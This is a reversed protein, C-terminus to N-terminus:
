SATVHDRRLEHLRPPDHSSWARRIRYHLRLSTGCSSNGTGGSNRLNRPIPREYIESHAAGSSRLDDGPNELGATSGIPGIQGERPEPGLGIGATPSDYGAASCGGRNPIPRTRVTWCIFPTLWKTVLQRSAPTPTTASCRSSFMGSKTIKGCLTLVRRLKIRAWVGTYYSEEASHTLWTLSALLYKPLARALSYAAGDNWGFFARAQVAQAFDMQETSYCASMVVLSSQVDVGQKPCDLGLIESDACYLRARFYVAM